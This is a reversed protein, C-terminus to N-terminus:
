FGFALVLCAFAPDADDGAHAKEGGEQAAEGKIKDNTQGNCM